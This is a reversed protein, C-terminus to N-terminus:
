FLMITVQMSIVVTFWFEMFPISTHSQSIQMMPYTLRLMSNLRSYMITM